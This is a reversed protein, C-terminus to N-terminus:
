RIYEKSVKTGRRVIYLGSVPEAVRVGQLNFYETGGVTEVSINGVGSTGSVTLKMAKTDLTLVADEVDSAFAMNGLGDGTVVDYTQNAEMDEKLTTYAPKWSKDSLKFPVGGRIVGTEYVYVEGDATSMIYEDTFGWNNVEGTFYLDGHQVVPPEDGAGSLIFVMANTDVKFHYTGAGLDWSYDTGDGTYIMKNEGDVPVTGAAEPTYRCGNFAGWDGNSNLEKVFGFSNKGKLEVDTEFVGDATKTMEIGKATDWGGAPEGILFLTNAVEAYLPCAMAAFATALLLNKM